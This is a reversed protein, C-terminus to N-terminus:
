DTKGVVSYVDAVSIEEECVFHVRDFSCFHNMVVKRSESQLHVDSSVPPFRLCICHAARLAQLRVFVEFKVEVFFDWYSIAVYGDSSM